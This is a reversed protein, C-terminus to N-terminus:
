GRELGPLGLLALGRSGRLGRTGDRRTWRPILLRGNGRDPFFGGSQPEIVGLRIGLPVVARHGGGDKLIWLRAPMEDRRRDLGHLLPGRM